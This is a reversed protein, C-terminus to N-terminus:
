QADHPAAYVVHGSPACDPGWSGSGGGGAAKPKASRWYPPELEGEYLRGGHQHRWLEATTRNLFYALTEYAGNDIVVLWLPGQLATARM